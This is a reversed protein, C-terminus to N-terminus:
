ERVPRKRLIYRIAEGVTQINSAEDESISIGFEKELQMVLEITELSDFGMAPFQSSMDIAQASGGQTRQFISMFHDLIEASQIILYGCYPCTADSGLDSFEIQVDKGCLVCHGSSGEPTRSSDTM